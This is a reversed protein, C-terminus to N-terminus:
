LQGDSAIEVIEDGGVEANGPVSSIRLKEIAYPSM